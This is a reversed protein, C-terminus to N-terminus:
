HEHQVYLLVAATHKGRMTIVEPGCQLAKEVVQDLASKAKQIQWERAM